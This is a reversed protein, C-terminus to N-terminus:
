TPAPWGGAVDVYALGARTAFGRDAPGRGVHVSRALALGHDHALALALGPLPKRCWCVPPGPPHTCRAVHIAVGLLAALAADIAPDFSEPQWTTAALVYGARQWAALQEIAGPLLAIDALTRARRRWVIGDLEVILAPTGTTASAREFAVTEIAAFGEDARPPEYQRRYRFQAGPGIQKQKALEAPELLRGYREIVRVAANHQADELSTDAVVCRVGVGNRRAVALVTARSARTAYTNDLVVRPAATALEADLQKAIDRLSGGREDRNLRAYGREVYRAALTSKGAGPMGIVLVVEGARGEAHETPDLLHADLARVDDAALVLARAASRATEIRTAGPLPIVGHARLWALAIEGPSAAVRAAIAAFVPDRALRKVGAPGGFPRHALVRIGRALCTAVLGDRLADTHWPSLEIEIADIATVALAQELQHTNVNSVGIARVVGADRLKALARMSTALPTKPDIAHLLYLDIADVGLRERSARAAADLHRARGNPVWAGDPRVLGGKTVIEVRRTGRAAAILRENHGVDTDDLAYADATDFLEVGADLAAALVAAGRADDRAPDTSLRMCGLAITV